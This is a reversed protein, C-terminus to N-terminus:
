RTFRPPRDRLSLAVSVHPQSIFVVNPFKIFMSLANSSASTFTPYGGCCQLDCSALQACPANEDMDHDMMHISESISQVVPTDAEAVLQSALVTGLPALFMALILLFAIKINQRSIM